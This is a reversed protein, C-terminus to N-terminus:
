ATSYGYRYQQVTYGADRQAQHTRLSPPEQCLECREEVKHDILDHLGDGKGELGKEEEERM